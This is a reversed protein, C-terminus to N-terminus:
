SPRVPLHPLLLERDSESLRNLLDTFAGDLEARQANLKRYEPDNNALQQVQDSVRWVWALM